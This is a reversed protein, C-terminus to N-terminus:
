GLASLRDRDIIEVAGRSLRLLELRELDKLARTVAERTAGVWDALEQRTSRFSQDGTEDVNALLIQAIRSQLEDGRVLIRETLSTVQLALRRMENLALEPNESILSRFQEETLALANVSTRAVVTASRSGGELAALDGIVAGPGQRRLVVTSGQRSTATVIVEGEIVAYCSTGREGHRVLAEGPEFRVATGAETIAAWLTM